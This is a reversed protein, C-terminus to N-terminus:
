ATARSLRESVQDRVKTAVREHSAMAEAQPMGGSDAQVLFRDVGGIAIIREAIEKAVDDVSGCVAQSDPQDLTAWHPPLPAVSGRVEKVVWSLYGMQYPMWFDRAASTSGAGVYCHTHLIVKADQPDHGAAVWGERYAKVLDNPLFKGTSITAIAIPCGLDVARKVSNMSSASIVIPPNAQHPRPHMTVGDLPPRITGSWHVDRETWLRRLLRVGEDLMAESRDGDQGFLRYHDKYVGRGVLIEMRGRSLVDVVGFDEAIFIPDHHPLLTVATSLIIRKTQVAIASLLPAPCSLVYDTFHHEGLHYSAFGLRECEVGMDVFGRFKDGEDVFEGTAPDAIFDGLTVVGLPPCETNVTSSM